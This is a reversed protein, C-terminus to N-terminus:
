QPKQNANGQHNTILKRRIGIPWKTHRGKLLAREPGKDMKQKPIQKRAISNLEEYILIKSILEKDFINNAAIQTPQRKM